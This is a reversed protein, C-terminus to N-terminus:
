AQRGSGEELPLLVEVQDILRSVALPAQENAELFTVYTVKALNNIWQSNDVFCQKQQDTLHRLLLAV